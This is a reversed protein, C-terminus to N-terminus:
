YGTLVLLFPWLILKQDFINWMIHQEIDEGAPDPLAVDIKPPCSPRQTGPPALSIGPSNFVPHTLFWILINIIMINISKM